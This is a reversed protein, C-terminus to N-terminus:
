TRLRVISVDDSDLEAVKRAYLLALLADSCIQQVADDLKIIETALTQFTDVMRQRAFSKTKNFGNPRGQLM